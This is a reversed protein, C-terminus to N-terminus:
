SRSGSRGRSPTSSRRSRFLRIARNCSTNALRRSRARDRPRVRAVGAPHEVRPRSGIERTRRSCSPWREVQGTLKKTIGHPTEGGLAHYTGSGPNVGSVDRAVSVNGSAMRLLRPDLNRAAPVDRLLADLYGRPLPTVSTHRVRGPGRIRPAATENYEDEIEEDEDLEPPEELQEAELEQEDLASPRRWPCRQNGSAARTPCPPDAGPAAARPAVAGPAIAGSAVAATAFSRALVPAALGQTPLTGAAQRRRYEAPRNVRLAAEEAYAPNGTRKSMQEGNALIRRSTRRCARKPGRRPPPVRTTQTKVLREVAAGAAKGLGAGIATGAPGVLTGLGAGAMMGLNQGLGGGGSSAPSGGGGGFLSALTQMIDGTEGGPAEAESEPDGTDWSGTDSSLTLARM